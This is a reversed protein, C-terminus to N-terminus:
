GTVPRSMTMLLESSVRWRGKFQSVTDCGFNRPEVSSDKIVLLHLYRTNWVGHMDLSNSVNRRIGSPRRAYHLTQTAYCM